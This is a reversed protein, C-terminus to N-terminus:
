PWCPRGTAELDEVYARVEDLKSASPDGRELLLIRGSWYRVRFQQRSLIDLVMDSHTARPNPTSYFRCDVLDLLVYEM